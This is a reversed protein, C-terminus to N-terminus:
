GAKMTGSTHTDRISNNKNEKWSILEFTQNTVAANGGSKWNKLHSNSLFYKAIRHDCDM